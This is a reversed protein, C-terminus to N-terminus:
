KGPIPYYSTVRAGHYMIDNDTIWTLHSLVNGTVSDLSSRQENIEASSLAYDWIDIAAVEGTLYEAILLDTVDGVM